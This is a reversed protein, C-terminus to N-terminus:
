FDTGESGSAAVQYGDAGVGGGTYGVVNGDAVNLNSGGWIGAAQAVGLRGGGGGWAIYSVIDEAQDFGNGSYLGMEGGGASLAGAGSTAHLTDGTDDGSGLRIRLQSGPGLDIAPFPWYNPFQCLFWGALSVSDATMNQIRVVGSDVFALNQIIVKGSAMAMEEETPAAAAAAGGVVHGYNDVGITDGAWFILDGAAVDLNTDGWLDAVQALGQRGGGGGWGVYAVMSAASDFSGDSYIAMEGSGGLLGMGGGVFVDTAANDGANAHVTLREGAGITTGDPLRAYSPRQCMFWGGVDIADDSANILTVTGDAGALAIEDIVISLEPAVPEPEPAADPEPTTDPEPAADPEPEADPAPPAAPEAQAAAAAPAEDDDDDGGCGVLALGAAGVGFRASWNLMMRRSLRRETFQNWLEDSM